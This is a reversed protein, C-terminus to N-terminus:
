ALDFISRVQLMKRFEDASLPQSIDCKKVVVTKETGASLDFYNDSFVCDADTLDLGVYKAFASSQLRILFHDEQEEVTVRIEPDMFEFHKHKVFLLTGGSICEDGNWLSYELYTNRRASRDSLEESFDLECVQKSTLPGVQVELTGEKLVRSAADRLRWSVHGCFEDRLESCVHLAAKCGDDCVSIMVPAFFRKAFYHLAKWRGYYDISSWSAVPWCDNLQWYIAGMCRGRHRRWHEVGYKIAEAQLLQSTYLLSEFDKPYKFNESLYYLIKGNASGNKQHNEMVYSFINRDEPLTFSRVTKIGPFSQFGFESVFRFNFKRYETFPKLGHWVDWYHVDGRNEDNPDDFGGGCSPSSPWYFTNPDHEAVVQPLIEEFMKLYHRRHKETKPFGWHIWATEMENNGCWIALSAHHRLRRVNDEAERRINEAFEDTLEYVACAFMFDQWVLLGYQDCLDYFYDEPYHGGGWIRIINFNAKVCSQILMETRERSCRALLSDQPICDAGMAFIPVGNIVFEFSEGWQDKERRVKITRLGIRFERSDIVFYDKCSYADNFRDTVTGDGNHLDEATLCSGGSSQICRDQGPLYGPQGKLLEVSLGYLPQAGYNNPWWLQPNEIDFLLHEECNKVEICDHAAISGDPATVQARLYLAKGDDQGSCCVSGCETRVRVDLSVKGDSHSQTVYVDTLRENPGAIVSISRWIGSDPIQPGWDWGFMSHCKRIHPFGPIADETGWLPNQSNRSSIYRIPSYLVIRITNSGEKILDKIDFKWTRHMNDAYGAHKENIYVDAITDLGECLLVIREQGVITSDATFERYYEYDHSAIEKAAYDNERYFPDEILGATLLDNFVSGPVCADTWQGNEAKRFRWKGNLSLKYMDSRRIPSRDHRLNVQM